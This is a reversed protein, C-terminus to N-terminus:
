GYAIRRSRVDPILQNYYDQADRKHWKDRIEAGRQSRKRVQKVEDEIESESQYDKNEVDEFIQVQLQDLPSEVVETKFQDLGIETVSQAEEADAVGGLGVMDRRQTAEQGMTVADQTQSQGLPVQPQGLTLDM